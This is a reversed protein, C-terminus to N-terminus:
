VSLFGDYETYTLFKLAIKIIGFQQKSVHELFEVLLMNNIYLIFVPLMVSLQFLM